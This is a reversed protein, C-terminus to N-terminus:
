YQPMESCPRVLIVVDQFLTADSELLLKEEGPPALAGFEQQLLDLIEEHTLKDEFEPVEPAQPAGGPSTRDHEEDSDSEDSEDVDVGATLTASRAGTWNSVTLRALKESVAREDDDLDRAVLQSFGNLSDEAIVSDEAVSGDAVLDPHSTTLIQGFSAADSFLRALGPNHSQSPNTTTEEHTADSSSSSSPRPIEPDETRRRSIRPWHM